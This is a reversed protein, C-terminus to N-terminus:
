EGTKKQEDPIREEDIIFPPRARSADLTRWLYEGLIGLMSLILGSSLLVVCILSAWGIIPVGRTFYEVLVSIMLILAFFDFIVGVYTMFRIPIYSFCHM